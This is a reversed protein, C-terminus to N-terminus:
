ISSEDRGRERRETPACPEAQMNPTRPGTAWLGGQRLTREVQKVAEDIAAAGIPDRSRLGGAYMAVMAMVQESLRPYICSSGLFLLKKTGFRHAADIVNTQVELNERIFDAPSSRNALIGGVRAAALFVYAPQHIAFFRRVDEQKRLDLERRTATLLRTFGDAKLRRCLASGVLGAHGAVYIQESPHM